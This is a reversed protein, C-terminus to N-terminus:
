EEEWSKEGSAIYGHNKHERSFIIYVQEQEGEIAELLNEELDNSAERLATADQPSFGAKINSLETFVPQFPETNSFLKNRIRRPLRTAQITSDLEALQQNFYDLRNELDATNNLEVRTALTDIPNLVDEIAPKLVSLRNEEDVLNLFSTVEKTYRYFFVNDMQDLEVQLEKIKLLVDTYRRLEKRNEDLISKTSDIYKSINTVQQYFSLDRIPEVSEKFEEQFTDLLHPCEITIRSKSTDFLYTTKADPCSFNNQTLNILISDTENLKTLSYSKTLMFFEPSLFKQHLETLSQMEVALSEADRSTTATKLSEVNSKIQDIFKKLRDPVTSVKSIDTKRIESIFRNIKDYQATWNQVFEEREM